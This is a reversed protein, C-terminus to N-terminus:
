VLQTFAGRHYILPTRSDRREITLARGILIRHDGGPFVNELACEVVVCADNLLPAGTIGKSFSAQSFRDGAGPKAALSALEHQTSSLINVGFCETEEIHALTRSARALSVLLLPPDLSLSCFASVTTGVPEDGNLATIITVGSAFEGMAERLAKPDIDTPIQERNEWFM